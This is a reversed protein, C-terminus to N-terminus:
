SHIRAQLLPRGGAGVELIGTQQCLHRQQPVHGQSEQALFQKPIRLVHLDGIDRLGVVGEM